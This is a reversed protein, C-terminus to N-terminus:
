GNSIDGEGCLMATEQGVMEEDFIYGVKLERGTNPGSRRVIKDKVTLAWDPDVHMTVRVTAEAFTQRAIELERGRLPKLSFPVEVAVVTDAVSTDLQGRSDLTTPPRAIDGFHRKVEPEKSM